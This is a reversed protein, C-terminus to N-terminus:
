LSCISKYPSQLYLRAHKHTKELERNKQVEDAILLQIKTPSCCDRSDDLSIKAKKKTTTSKLGM